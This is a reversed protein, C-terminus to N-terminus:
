RGKGAVSFDQCPSGHTILDIDKPLKDINIKTIDGLNFREDVGHVACYSKIAYKDIESFGFLEFNIGINKLAQEPSGIGSFLSLYKIM